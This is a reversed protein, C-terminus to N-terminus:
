FYPFAYRTNESIKTANNFNRNFFVIGAPSGFAVSDLGFRRQVEDEMSCCKSLASVLYTFSEVNKIIVNNFRFVASREGPQMMPMVETKDTSITLGADGYARSFIM